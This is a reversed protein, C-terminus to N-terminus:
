GRRGPRRRRVHRRQFGLEDLVDGSGTWSDARADDFTLLLPRGPLDAAEGRVFDVFTELGITEDGAHDIMTMQKVFDDADVGYAADDANAFDSEAGIGHYLLVPIASRYPPLPAWM